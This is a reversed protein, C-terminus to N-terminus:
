DVGFVSDQCDQCLASINYEKRSKENRFTTAPKKCIACTDSRIATTRGTFQELFHELEPAKQSPKAMFFLRADRSLSKVAAKCAPHEQRFSDPPSWEASQSMIRQEPRM